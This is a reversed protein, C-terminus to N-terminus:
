LYARKLAVGHLFALEAELADDVVQAAARAGRLVNWTTTYDSELHEWWSCVVAGKGLNEIYSKNM